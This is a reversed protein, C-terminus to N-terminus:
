VRLEVTIAGHKEALENRATTAAHENHTLMGDTAENYTLGTMTRTGVQVPAGTYVHYLTWTEDQEVRRGYQQRSTNLACAGGENEWVGLAPLNQDSAAISSFNRM